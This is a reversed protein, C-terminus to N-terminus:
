RSKLLEISDQINQMEVKLKSIEKKIQSFGYREIDKNVMAKYIRLDTDLRSQRTELENKLIKISVNKM